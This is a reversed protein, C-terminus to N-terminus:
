RHGAIQTVRIHGFIKVGGTYKLGHAEKTQTLDDCTGSNRNVRTLEQQTKSKQVLTKPHTEDYDTEPIHGRGAM